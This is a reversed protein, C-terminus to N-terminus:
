APLVTPTFGRAALARMLPRVDVLAIFPHGELVVWLDAQHQHLHLGRLVRAASRSLNAQRMPEGLGRTWADRWLEGFSSREDPRFTVDSRVVGPIGARVWDTMESRDGAPLVGVRVEQDTQDCVSGVDEAM